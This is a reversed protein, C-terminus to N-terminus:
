LLIPRLKVVLENLQQISPCYASYINRNCVNKKSKCKSTVYFHHAVVEKTRELSGFCLIERLINEKKCIIM